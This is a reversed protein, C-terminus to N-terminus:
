TGISKRRYYLYYSYYIFYQLIISGNYIYVGTHIKLAIHLSGKTPIGECVYMCVTEINNILVTRTRSEQEPIVGQVGRVKGSAKVIASDRYLVYLVFVFITFLAGFM